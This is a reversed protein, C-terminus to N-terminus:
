PHTGGNIAAAYAAVADVARALVRGEGRGSRQAQEVSAVATALDANASDFRAIQGLTSHVSSLLTGARRARGDALLTRADRLRREARVVITLFARGRFDPNGPTDLRKDDTLSTYGCAPAILVGNALQVPGFSHMMTGDPYAHVVVSVFRDVGHSRAFSILAAGSPRVGHGYEFQLDSVVPAFVFRPPYNHPGMNGEAIRFWFGSEAQWLMSDGWRGFPFIALTEGRPICQKYVDHMFFSWREPKRAWDVQTVAPVLAAVALAPLVIPRGLIRGRTSAIWLAVMVSAALSAYVALREPLVNDVVPRQAVLKWPFPALRHGYVHLATGITLVVAVVLSAALYRLGASRRARAALLGIMALAPLGLYSDRENDNGPFHGSVHALSSGGLGILHTPVVFNLLDGSFIAPNGFYFPEYGRLAYVVLPAAIVAAFAYAAVIWPVGLLLRRAHERLLVCALVLALALVLTLTLTVETSIALQLAIMLGLRWAFGRGNLEGKAYRVLALAVLPLLFVATLNLHGGYEHGLVYSSFGFLYGGVASAWTSRTLYRCLLYATWASVAPILLQAVNFSVDPGFLLTIPALVIALGPVSTTWVLNVGLPAYIAHTFFPNTWNLVAHPWWGLSWVFIEPDSQGGLPAFGILKRGPHAVLPLGFYLFSVACYGALVVLNTWRRGPV